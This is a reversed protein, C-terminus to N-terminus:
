AILRVGNIVQAGAPQTWLLTGGTFSQVTYRYMYRGDIYVYVKSGVVCGGRAETTPQDTNTVQAILTGALTWRAYIRNGGSVSSAATIENRAADFWLATVTRAGFTAPIDIYNVLTGALSLRMLKATATNGEMILLEGALGAIALKDGTTQTPLSWTTLSSLAADAAAEALFQTVVVSNSRTIYVYGDSALAMRTYGPIDGVSIGTITRTATVALAPISLDIDYQQLNVGQNPTLVRVGLRYGRWQGTPLLAVAADKEDTGGTGAGSPPTGTQLPRIDAAADNVAYFIHADTETLPERFQVRGLHLGDLANEAATITYQLRFSFLESPTLIRQIQLASGDLALLSLNNADALTDGGFRAPSVSLILEQDVDQRNQVAFDRTVTRAGELKEAPTPLSCVEEDFIEENTSLEYLGLPAGDYLGVVHISGWAATAAGGNDDLTVWLGKMRVPTAMLFSKLFSIEHANPTFSVIQTWTGDSGTTTDLSKYIRILPTGTLTSLACKLILKTLLFVYPFVFRFGDTTVSNSVALDGDLIAVDNAGAAVVVPSTIGTTKKVLTGDTLISQRRGGFEDPLDSGTITFVNSLTSTLTGSTALLKYNGPKTGSLGTFTAVGSSPTQTKTGVLLAAEVPSGKEDTLQIAVATTYGTVTAGSRDIVTVAPSGLSDGIYVPTTPHTTFSLASAVADPTGIIVTPSSTDSAPDYKFIGTNGTVRAVFVFRRGPLFYAPINKFQLTISVKGQIFTFPVTTVDAGNYRFPASPPNGVSADVARLEIIGTASSDVDVVVRGRRQRGVRVILLFTMDTEVAIVVPLGTGFYPYRLLLPDACDRDRNEISLATSTGTGTISHLTFATPAPTGSATAVQYFSAYIAAGPKWHHPACLQLQLLQTRTLTVTFLRRGTQTPLIYFEPVFRSSHAALLQAFTIYLVKDKPYPNSLTCDITLSLSDLVGPVNPTGSDLVLRGTLFGGAILAGVPEPIVITDNDIGLAHQYSTFTYHFTWSGM